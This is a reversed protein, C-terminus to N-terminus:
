NTPLLNSSQNLIRNFTNQQDSNYRQTLEISLSLESHNLNVINGYKDLLQIKLKSIKVDGFYDRKKFVNDENNDIIVNFLPNTVQIRALINKGIYSKNKIGVIQDKKNGVFDEVALYFYTNFNFGFIFKSVLYGYYTTNGYQYTDNYNVTKGVNFFTFGFIYLASKAFDPQEEVLNLSYSLKTVDITSPISKGITDREIKSKFRFHSKGSNVDIAFLLCRIYPNKNEDLLSNLFNVMDDAYWSGVPITVKFDEKLVENEFIKISFINNKLEPDFIYYTNPIEASSLKMQIVNTYEVPLTITFDTSTSSEFNDRYISDISIIQKICPPTIPNVNTQLSQNNILKRLEYLSEQIPNIETTPEEVSENEYVSFYKNIKQPPSWSKHHCIKYFINKFLLSIEEKEITNLQSSNEITDIKESVITFLDNMSYDILEINLLEALEDYSYENINTNISNM